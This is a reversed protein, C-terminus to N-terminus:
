KKLASKKVADKVHKRFDKATMTQEILVANSTPVFCMAIGVPKEGSWQTYRYIYGGPVPLMHTAEDNAASTWRPLLDAVNTVPTDESM